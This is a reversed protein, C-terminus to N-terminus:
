PRPPPGTPAESETITGDGDQDLRSFHDAPGDFEERAVQGDRNKDFRNMFGGGGSGRRHGAGRPGRQNRGREQNPMGEGHPGRRPQASQKEVRPGKDVTEVNGGRVGRVMNEIRIVDGQPGRGTPFRSAEGVKPDSRQSGAGHVDM